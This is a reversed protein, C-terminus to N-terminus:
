NGKWALGVIESINNYSNKDLYSEIEQIIKKHVEPDIFISTGVQVASAGALFFELADRGNTIGGIGIIPLTVAQSVQYVMKLAVPKIAPGSLGGYIDSGQYVFGKRKLFTVIDEKNSKDIM